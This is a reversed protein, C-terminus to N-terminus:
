LRHEFHGGHARICPRLRSRKMSIFLIKKHFKANRDFIYEYDLM